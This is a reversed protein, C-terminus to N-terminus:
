PAAIARMRRRLDAIKAALRTLKEPGKAFQAYTVLDTWRAELRDGYRTRFKKYDRALARFEANVKKPEPAPPAAHAETHRHGRRGAHPRSSSHPAVTAAVPAPADVPTPAADATVPAAIEPAVVAPEPAPATDVARVMVEGLHTPPEPDDTVLANAVLVAAAAVAVALGLFVLWMGRKGRRAPRTIEVSSATRDARAFSVTGAPATLMEAWPEIDADGLTLMREHEGAIESEFVDRLLKGVRDPSLVPNVEVLAAQIADRLKGASEFRKGPEPALARKVLDDFPLLEAAVQSPLPHAGRSVRRALAKIDPDEGIEYLPRATLLEYLVAGTAYIDTAFDIRGGKILQEPAMYGLKGFAFAQEAEVKLASKAIGFDIIKVEGEFSLMVNPPSIDCHVLGLARGRSDTRRHAYALGAAIERGIYLAIDAPLRQGRERLVALTRRLDRGDIHEIALFYEADVQGVEFVQAINAHQLNVALKAEDIFRRIFARDSSLRPLVKKVVVLKEFGSLGHRALFIEGMGGRSLRDVLLYRGFVRPLAGTRVFHHPGGPPTQREVHM